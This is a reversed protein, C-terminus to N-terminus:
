TKPRSYIGKAKRAPPLQKMMDLLASNAGTTHILLCFHLLETYLQSDLLCVAKKPKCASLHKTSATECLSEHHDERCSVTFSFLHWLWFPHLHHCSYMNELLIYLTLLQRLIQLFNTPFYCTPLKQCLSYKLNQKTQYMQKFSYYCYFLRFYDSSLLLMSSFHSLLYGM